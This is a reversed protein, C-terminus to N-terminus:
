RRPLDDTDLADEAASIEIDDAVRGDVLRIMRDCRAAVEPDHTAVILTMGLSRQLQLLLEVIREGTRSDLSGTPEDALVINPHNILARAIAVRQQQGGSMRAPLSSERGALGVRDLLERARAKKDFSTRYPLVPAIVNDLATLAPILNFRQFVLGVSRRYRTLDHRSLAALDRGDVAVSGVDVAEIAGIVHLLTSKGSGSPGCLAVATGASIALDVGDLATVGGAGRIAFNRRVGRLEVTAGPM